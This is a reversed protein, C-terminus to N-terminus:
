IKSEPKLYQHIFTNLESDLYGAKNKLFNAKTAISDLKNVEGQLQRIDEELETKAIDVQHGLRAFTSSLEQQVQHSCNAGTLDVILKLKSTAYHVYQRKFAREKAKKTWMMREYVYLLGYIAGCVAIVRWGAAKGVLGAIALAGVTSRSYLSSFTGLMALLIENDQSPNRYMENSPTQPTSTLPTSALPRPIMDSYGTLLSHAGKPGLFRNMLSMIGLSFHFEVDEHFDACLNHCDLRYAVEFDRAPLLNMVQQKATEPLLATLRETMEQQSSEVSTKLAISCRTQLNRGLGTEVHAHLEICLHVAVLALSSVSVWCGCCRSVNWDRSWRRSERGQIEWNTADIVQHIFSSCRAHLNRSLSEEAHFHLEKKYLALLLPDPHFPRDFEDVLIALRRIEETFANSVKREVEETIQKIKDKIEVSLLNLQKATYDLKDQAEHNEQQCCKKRKAASEFVSEMIMRVDSTILKGNATHQEFKTQVASQSICEEFKREFNSFEFARGQFGELLAGTPTPTGAEQHVRTLLTERASVFFVHSEAEYRDVVKLEDALFAISRELHQQKVEEQMDPEAASADWRNNLIFINPKSLKMSVKHFFNKETQMLTSEANAVLVFVDADLCHRDIWSDMDPSLDIGPSDLFIVDDKLLSCKNKPWCIHITSDPKLRVTSLAHALGSISQVSLPQPQDETLIYAEESDTGEVQLFCNTTHGIGTPLIKSRLMANIVSSKGNSTRGYFAVKMRDRGLMEQIGEVKEIYKATQESQSVEVIDEERAIEVLFTNTELM